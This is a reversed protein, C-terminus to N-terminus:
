DTKRLQGDVEYLWGRDLLRDVVYEADTQEEIHESEALLIEHAESKSLEDTDSGYAREPTQYASVTM